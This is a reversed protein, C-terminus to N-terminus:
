KLLTYIIYAEVFRRCDFGTRSYFKDLRQILTNRHLYLNKAAKSMNQDCELFVKVTYLLDNDEFVSKLLKKKFEKDFPYDVRKLLLQYDDYIVTQHFPVADFWELIDNLDYKPEEDSYYVKLDTYLEEALNLFLDKEDIKNPEHHIILKSAQEDVKLIRYSTSLLDLIVHKHLSIKNKTELIIFTM